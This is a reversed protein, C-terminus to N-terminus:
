VSDQCLKWTKAIETNTHLSGLIYITQTYFIDLDRSLCIDYTVHDSPIGDDLNCFATLLFSWLQVFDGTSLPITSHISGAESLYEFYSQLSTQLEELQADPSITQLM